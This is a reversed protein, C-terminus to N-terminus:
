LDCIQTYPLFPSLTWLRDAFALSDFESANRAFNLFIRSQSILVIITMLKYGELESPPSPPRREWGATLLGLAPKLALAFPEPARADLVASFLGTVIEWKNTGMKLIRLSNGVYLTQRELSFIMEKTLPQIRDRNYEEACCHEESWGSSVSWVALSNLQQWWFPCFIADFALSSLHGVVWFHELPKWASVKKLSGTPNVVELFRYSGFKSETECLKARIGDQGPLASIAECPLKTKRILYQTEWRFPGQM